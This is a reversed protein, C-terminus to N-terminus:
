PQVFPKLFTIVDDKSPPTDYVKAQSDNDFTVFMPCSDDSGALETTGLEKGTTAEHVSVTYSASRLDVKNNTDHGDDQYGTCEKLPEEHKVQICAVVDIKAYANSNADFQVMWDEPLTGTDETLDGSYASFLLVKHTPAGPDYAAARSESAGSCVGRFDDPFLMGQPSATTPHSPPQGSSTRTPSPPSGIATPNKIVTALSGCAAVAALAATGAVVALGRAAGTAL